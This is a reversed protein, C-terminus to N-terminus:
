EGVEREKDRNRLWIQYLEATTNYNQPNNNGPVFRIWWKGIDEKKNCDVNNIRIADMENIWEAFAIADESPLSSRIHKRRIIEDLFSYAMHEFPTKDHEGFYNRISKLEILEYDSLGEGEKQEPQTLSTDNLKDLRARLGDAFDHSLDGTMTAHPCESNLWDILENKMEEGFPVHERAEDHNNKMEATKPTM